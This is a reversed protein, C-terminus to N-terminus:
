LVEKQGVVTSVLKPTPRNPDRNFSDVGDTADTHDGQETEDPATAVDKTPPNREPDKEKMRARRMRLAHRLEKAENEVEKYIEERAAALSVERGEGVLERRMKKCVKHQWRTMGEAYKLDLCPVRIWFDTNPVCVQIYGLDEDSVWITVNLVPGLESRLAGLDSSNYMLCDFEIGAHDLSRDEVRRLFLRELLVTKTPVMQDALGIEKRWADILSQQKGLVERPERMFIDVLWKPFLKDFTSKRLLADKKPNFNCRTVINEMTAGPLTQLLDLDMTRFLREVHPKFWPKKRPCLELVSGGMESCAQRFAMAHEELGNDGVYTKHTGFCDWRGKVNPYQSLFDLKPQVSNRICRAVSVTSPVEAGWYVGTPIRVRADVGISMRPRGLPLFDDDLLVIALPTHDIQCRDLVHKVEVGGMSNRMMAMAVDSGYRASILDYESIEDIARQMVRRRPIPLRESELRSDNELVIRDSVIEVAREVTIRPNAKLFKTDRVDRVIDMVEAPYRDGYRGKRDNREVLAAIPDSANAAKARWNLISNLHPPEAPWNFKQHLQEIANAIESPTLGRVARVYDWRLTAKRREEEDDTGPSLAVANASLLSELRKGGREEAEDGTCCFVLEKREFALWLVDDPQVDMFGTTIDVMHWRRDPLRGILKLLRDRWRILQNERLTALGV